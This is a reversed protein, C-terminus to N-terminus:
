RRRSKKLPVAKPVNMLNLAPQAPQRAAPRELGPILADPHQARRVEVIPMRQHALPLEARRVEEGAVPEPPVFDPLEARRVEFTETAAPPESPEVPTAMAVTPASYNQVAANILSARQPTVDMATELIKRVMAPESNVADIAATVIGGACHENIVLAEELRMVMKDPEARIAAFLEACLSECAVQNTKAKVPQGQAEPTVLAAFCLLCLLRM